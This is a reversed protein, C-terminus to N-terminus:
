LKLVDKTNVKGVRAPTKIVAIIAGFVQPAIELMKLVVFQALKV